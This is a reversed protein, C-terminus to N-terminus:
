AMKHNVTLFPVCFLFRLKADYGYVKKLRSYVLGLIIVFTGWCTLIHWFAHLKFREVEPCFNQDTLWAAFGLLSAVLGIVFSRKAVDDVLLPISVFVSSSMLIGWSVQFLLPVPQWIYFTSFAFGLFFLAYPLFRFRRKPKSELCCFLWTLAAWVMPIEDFLQPYFKLTGHFAASGVGISILSVFGIIYRIELNFKRALYIGYSGLILYIINSITNYFEAIYYSHTYNFECWDITSTIEGWYGEQNMLNLIIESGDNMLREIRENRLSADLIEKLPEGM